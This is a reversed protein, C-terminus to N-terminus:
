VVSKRDADDAVRVGKDIQASILLTRVFIDGLQQALLRDLRLGAALALPAVSRVTLIKLLGPVFYTLNSYYELTPKRGGLTEKEFNAPIVFFGFINGRRVEEMAADYTECFHDVDITQMAELNRTIARSLSSHDLDVVATPVREPLGEHLISMFFVTVFLPVLVMGFFYIRRSALRCIERRIGSLFGLNAM